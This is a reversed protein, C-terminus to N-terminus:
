VTVDKCYNYCLSSSNTDKMAKSLEGAHIFVSEKTLLIDAFKELHRQGPHQSSEKACPALSTPLATPGRAAM